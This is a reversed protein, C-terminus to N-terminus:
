GGVSREAAEREERDRRALERIVAELADDSTYPDGRQGHTWRELIREFEGNV